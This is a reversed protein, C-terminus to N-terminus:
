EMGSKKLWQTYCDVHGHLRDAKSSEGLAVEASLREAHTSVDSDGQEGFWEDQRERSSGQTMVAM